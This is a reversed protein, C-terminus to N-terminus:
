RNELRNYDFVGYEVPAMQESAAHFTDGQQWFNPNMRRVGYTDILQTYDAV